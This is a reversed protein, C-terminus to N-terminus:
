VARHAQKRGKASQLQREMKEVARDIAVYMDSSDCQAVFEENDIRTLLDCVHRKKVVSLVVHIHAPPPNHRRPLRGLRKDIHTRLAATIDLHHGTIDIQM